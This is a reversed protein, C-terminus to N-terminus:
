TACFYIQLPRGYTMDADCWCGYDGGSGCTGAYGTVVMFAGYPCTYKTWRNDWICDDYSEPVPQAFQCSTGACGEGFYFCSDIYDGVYHM